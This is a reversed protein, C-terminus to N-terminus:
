TGPARERERKARMLEGRRDMLPELAGSVSKDGARLQTQLPAIQQDLKELEAEEELIAQRAFDFEAARGSAGRSTERRPVGEM